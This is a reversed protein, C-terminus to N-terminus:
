NVVRSKSIGNIICHYYVCHINPIAINYLNMFTMLVDHCGKCIDPQFKLGKNLLYWYHCFIVSKQNAQKILMLKNLFMLEIMIYCKYNVCVNILSFKRIIIIVM